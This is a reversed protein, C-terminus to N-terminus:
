GENGLELESAVTIVPEVPESDTPADATPETSVSELEPPDVLITEAEPSAVASALPEIAGDVESEPPSPNTPSAWAVLAATLGDLTYEAAELDVRGLLEICSKSTQPGISAICVQQLWDQGSEGLEPLDASATQLLQCFNQVTKSSAFTVITIQRDGMADLVAPAIAKPCRSEYAAVEQVRAGQRLLEKVLVDRGGSEVRPFLFTLGSVPEPFQTVLADAVFDLPMFDPQIGLRNLRQATKEGVVAIKLNTDFRIDGTQQKLRRFFYDVANASTLILWNFDEIQDIARDLARWSSPPGIELTPMELVTAGQDELQQSFASAQSAARTVLVTHHALPLHELSEPQEMGLDDPHPLEALTPVPTSVPLTELSPDLPEPQSLGELASLAESFPEPELPPLDALSRIEHPTPVPSNSDLPNALQACTAIPQTGIRARLKVVEGIVIVCPSLAEGDTKQVISDLRGAWIQQEPRGAWRIIAIPTQPSKGHGRLRRVIEPLTSGGMLLVLTDVRSLSVWDLRDPQHATAVAFCNSLAPDTLPIGALLPAVLASSLGPVVEYDCDAEVLANVEAQARGFVFPDGSKLRVVRKGQRCHTVLLRNIEAQPMSPQGGRKGVELKLCGPPVQDLLIGDVLADYVLVEAQALLAQAQMTLYAADGVGSGVLYVKGAHEMM